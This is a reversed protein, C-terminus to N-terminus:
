TRFYSRATVMSAELMQLMGNVGPEPNGKFRAEFDERVAGGWGDRPWVTYAVGGIFAIARDRNPKEKDKAADFFSDGYQAPAPQRKPFKQPLLTRDKSDWFTFTGLVTMIIWIFFYRRVQLVGVVCALSVGLACAATLLGLFFHVLATPSRADFAALGANEIWGTILAALFPFLPFLLRVGILSLVLCLIRTIGEQKRFIWAGAGILGLLAGGIFLVYLRTLYASDDGAYAAVLGLLGALIPPVVFDILTRIM